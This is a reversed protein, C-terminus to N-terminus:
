AGLGKLSAVLDVVTKQFGVFESGLLGRARGNDFKFYNQVSGGPFDGGESSEEPLRGAYEPFEKRVIDVIEKNSYYGGVAMVRKGAMEEGEAALVHILAADRVDVCLFLGTDPVSDKWKGALVDRIRANSTNVSELTVDHIMPGFVMPPNVTTLSFNPKKEDMFNWAAQEALKKSGSYGVAPSTLAEEHTVPNWDAESYTHEPWNGRDRQWMAAFSSTIIVRRVSPANAAISLLINTTGNIAPDLLQSQVDTIAFTYPSATHIVADFPPDSIVAEDFAGDLAIDPVIAFALKGSDYQAYRQRIKDAKASNRVTTVVSHGRKLLTDLVHAGLFGSGGTLLVRSM